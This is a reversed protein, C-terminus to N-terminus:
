LSTTKTFTLKAKTSLLVVAGFSSVDFIFKADYCIIHSLINCLHSGNELLASGFRKTRSPGHSFGLLIRVKQYVM